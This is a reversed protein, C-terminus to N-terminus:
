APPLNAEILAGFTEAQTRGRIDAVVKYARQIADVFEARNRAAEVRLCLADSTPGLIQMLQRTAFTKAQPLSLAAPAAPQPPAQVAAPLHAPALTAQAQPSTIFGNDLLEALMAPVDGFGSALAHLASQPRKGDVLILLSRLRGVLGHSRTAIAEQGKTTKTYVTDVRGPESM